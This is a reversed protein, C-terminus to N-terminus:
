CTVVDVVKFKDAGGRSTPPLVEFWLPMNHMRQVGTKWSRRTLEALEAPHLLDAVRLVTVDVQSTHSAWTGDLTVGTDDSRNSGLSVRARGQGEYSRLYGVVLSGNMTFPLWPWHLVNGAVSGNGILGPKGPRDAYFRWGSGLHGKRVPGTRTPIKAQLQTNYRQSPVHLWSLPTACAGVTRLLGPSALPGPLPASRPRGEACVALSAQRFLAFAVLSAYIEHTTPGPHQLCNDPHQGEGDLTHCSSRWFRRAPEISHASRSSANCVAQMFSVMPLSYHRAITARSEACRLTLQGVLNAWSEILVVGQASSLARRVFLETAAELKRSSLEDTRARGDNISYDLMVVDDTPDVLAPYNALASSITTGGEARVEVIVRCPLVSRLQEALLAAWGLEKHEHGHNMAAATMSAGLVKIRLTHKSTSGASVCSALSGPLQGDGAVVFSRKADIGRIALRDAISVAAASFRSSSCDARSDRM